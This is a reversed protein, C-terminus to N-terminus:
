GITHCASSLEHCCPRAASAAMCLSPMSDTSGVQESASEFSALHGGLKRCALQHTAQDAMTTNWYFMDGTGPDEVTWM